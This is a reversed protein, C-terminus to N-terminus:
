DHRVVNCAQCLINRFEGTIHSHDMVKTTSTKHKDQTLTRLCEDCETTSLYKEWIKDYDGLLGRYRWNSIMQVKKGKETQNYERNKELIYEKNKERWEKNMQKVKEKNKEKYEKQKQRRVEPDKYPM